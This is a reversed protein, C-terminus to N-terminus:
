MVFVYLFMLSLVYEFSQLMCIVFSLCRVVSYILDFLFDVLILVFYLCVSSPPNHTHGLVSGSSFRLKLCRGVRVM